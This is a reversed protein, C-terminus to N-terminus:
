VNETEELYGVKQFFTVYKKLYDLDIDAWEFGLRKLYQVTFDNEIQIKSDYIIRDNSDLDNIFTEFIFEMGEQEATKRLADTFREGSVIKLPYGLREFYTDLRDMYVVKPSNLHFVTQETSFHRAITMLASAAEDVPTFELYLEMLYDPFMKMELVAKVRKLFANTEYNKQFWGDLFRNTLNGMRMINARLGQHMAKLVEWEAEFKSRAYVNELSQGVYLNHEYFNINETNVYGDFHDVFSNGSVSLTSIHILKAKAEFCFQILGKVSEVNAEYFYQYSGYHKVSAAGHIVTDVKSWLEEYEQNSLGFREEQLDACLIKIRGCYQYKDKFYYSCLNWFRDESEEVDKGRVLCYATGGDHELFDALIHIGLFGTAGTLLINGIESKQFNSVCEMKNKSLIPEINKFDLDAFSIELKNGTEICVALKQVTPYDFVNQLDFYIGEYHAMSVFEIAKLSDGGLDFFDDNRGVPVYDLVQEIIEALKKELQGQPSVYETTSEMCDLAVEPLGKRNLKGSSTLPMESLRTFIHPMMYRPLKEQINRKIDALDVPTAETYFACIVQRGDEQRRVAVVAQLVGSVSCIASEIEGLEIRLGRIKVQFDNRGVYVLNGDKRWYALDGTRYLKGKGFPNEPFREQTMEPQNLYGAGVGDGAICLEGTTGIPSLRMYKDVIYIQTNAIPKGITIDQESEVEGNTSWVTTETPGYINFIRAPTLQRLESILSGDVAEGGLILAKLTKLYECALPDQILSRMKTPTTQMVDAPLKKLLANLESQLTAQEENAFLITLGNALPLLSETVFIDFGVTTVSLIIKHNNQVIKHVVNNNNNNNVYNLVNRHTLLTGKPRGTSGSTYICYCIEEGSFVINPDDIENNNLLQSLTDETVCLKANSDKLMYSIREKPYNPDVPLYAAGAKLIGIMVAILHSKRPLMFAVIDGSVVGQEMLGHAIRNAQKNLEAYTLVRDCAIIATQDPIKQAQEEFLMHVGKDKLYEVATHNFASCLMAEEQKTIVSIDKLLCEEHLMEKLVLKYGELFRRITSEQYLDTCYEALITVNERRPMLYFTFDYKSSTVPVPLIRAKEDGFVIDTMAESQYAFMVDFLPNRDPTNVNLKKVLASYSYDEHAMAEVSTEKVESLFEKVRKTGIPRNRLAVTDVFMGLTHLYRGQRGSMPMGVVIDENGSFKSLLIYFAGMYFMYPTMNWNKCRTLIEHHLLHDISDYLGSGQFSRKQKRKYDTNLELVPPE